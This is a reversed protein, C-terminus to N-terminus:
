MLGLAHAFINCLTEQFGALFIAIGERTNHGSFPQWISISLSWLKM